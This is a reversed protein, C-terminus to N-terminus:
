AGPQPAMGLQEMLTLVNWADWIEVVKGDEFRYIAQADLAIQKGTPEMGMIEGDNTGRAVYRIAVRDGEAVLDEIPTSLDSFATRYGRIRERIGDQGRTEYPEDPHHQVLDPGFLEEALDLDGATFFEEFVRRATERNREESM